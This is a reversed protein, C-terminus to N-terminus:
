DTYGSHVCVSFGSVGFDQKGGCGDLALNTSKPERIDQSHM